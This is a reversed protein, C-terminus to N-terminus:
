HNLTHSAFFLLLDIAGFLLAGGAVVGGLAAFYILVLALTPYNHNFRRVFDGIATDLEITIKM